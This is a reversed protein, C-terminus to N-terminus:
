PLFRVQSVHFTFYRQLLFWGFVIIFVVCIYYFDHIHCSDCRSVQSLNFTVGLNTQDWMGEMKIRFPAVPGLLVLDIGYNLLTDRSPFTSLNISSPLKWKDGVYVSLSLNMVHIAFILAITSRECKTPPFQWYNYSCQHTERYRLHSVLCQLWLNILM